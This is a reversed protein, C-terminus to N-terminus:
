IFFLFYFAYMVIPGPGRDGNPFCTGFCRLTYTTSGVVVTALMDPSTLLSLAAPPRAHDTIHCAIYLNTFVFSNNTGALNIQLINLM